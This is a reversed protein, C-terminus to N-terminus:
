YGVKTAIFMLIFTYIFAVIIIVCILFKVENSFKYEKFEFETQRDNTTNDTFDINTNLISNVTFSVYQTQYGTTVYYEPTNFSQLRITYEQGSSLIFRGAVNSNTCNCINYGSNGSFGFTNSQYQNAFILTGRGISTNVEAYCGGSYKVYNPFEDGYVQCYATQAFGAVLIILTLIFISIKKM